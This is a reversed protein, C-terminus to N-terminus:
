YPKQPVKSWTECGQCMKANLVFHKGCTQCLTSSSTRAQAKNDQKILRSSRKDERVAKTKFISDLLGM